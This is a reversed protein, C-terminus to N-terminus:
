WTAEGLTNIAQDYDSNNRKPNLQKLEQPNTILMYNSKNMPAITWSKRAQLALEEGCWLCVSHGLAKREHSYFGGCIRCTPETM